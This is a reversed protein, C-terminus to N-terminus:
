VKFDQDNIWAAIVILILMGRPPCQRKNISKAFRRQFIILESGRSGLHLDPIASVFPPSFFFEFLQVLFISWLSLRRPPNGDNYNFIFIWAAINILVQPSWLMTSNQVLENKFHRRHKTQLARDTHSLLHHKIALATSHVTQGEVLHITASTTPKTPLIIDHKASSVTKKNTFM